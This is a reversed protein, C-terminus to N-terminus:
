TPRPLASRCVVLTRAPVSCPGIRIDIGFRMLEAAAAKPINGCILVEPTVGRILEVMHDVTRAQNPVLSPANYQGKHLLLWPALGFLPSLPADPSRALVTLAVISFDEIM